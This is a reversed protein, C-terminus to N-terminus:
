GTAIGVAGVSHGKYLLFTAGRDDLIGIRGIHGIHGLLRDGACLRIKDQRCIFQGAENTFQGVKGASGRVAAESVGWVAVASVFLEVM